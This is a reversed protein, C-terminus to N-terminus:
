LSLYKLSQPSLDTPLTSAVYPHSNLEWPCHLFGARLLPMPAQPGTKTGMHVYTYRSMCTSTYRCMCVSAKVYVICSCVCMCRCIGACARTGPCSHVCIDFDKVYVCVFISM